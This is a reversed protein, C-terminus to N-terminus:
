HGKRSPKKLFRRSADPWALEARGLRKRLADTTLTLKQEKSLDKNMASLGAYFKADAKAGYLKLLEHDLRSRTPHARKSGKRGRGPAVANVLEDTGELIQRALTLRLPLQLADFPCRSLLAGARFEAPAGEDESQIEQLQQLLRLTKKLRKRLATVDREKGFKLGCVVLHLRVLTFVARCLSADDPRGWASALSQTAIIARGDVTDPSPEPPAPFIASVMEDVTM